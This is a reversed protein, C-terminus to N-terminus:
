RPYVFGVGSLQGALFWRGIAEPSGDPRQQFTIVTDGTPELRYAPVAQVTAILEREDETFIEVVTRNAQNDALKFLYRGPPLVQGPIETPASLTVITEQNFEEAKASPLIACGALVIMMGLLGLKHTM